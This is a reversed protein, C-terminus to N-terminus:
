EGMPAGTGLSKSRWLAIAALAANWFSWCIVALSALSSAFLWVAEADWRAMGAFSGGAVMIGFGVISVVFTIRGVLQKRWFVFAAVSGILVGLILPSGYRAANMLVFRREMDTTFMFYLPLVVVLMLLSIRVKTNWVEVKPTSVEEQVADKQTAAEDSFATGVAVLLGLAAFLILGVFLASDTSGSGETDKGEGASVAPDPSAVTGRSFQVADRIANQVSWYNSRSCREDVLDYFTADVKALGLATAAIKAAELVEAHAIKLAPEQRVQLWTSCRVESLNPAAHLPANVASVVGLFGLLWYVARM